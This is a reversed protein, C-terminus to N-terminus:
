YLCVCLKFDFFFILNFGRIFNLISKNINDVVFFGFVVFGVVFFVNIKCYLM